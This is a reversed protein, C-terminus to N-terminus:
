RWHAPAFGTYRRWGREGHGPDTGQSVTMTAQLLSVKQKAPCFNEGHSDSKELKKIM